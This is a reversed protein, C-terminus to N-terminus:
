RLEFTWMRTDYLMFKVQVTEALMPKGGTWMMEIEEDGLVCDSLSSGEIPHGGSQLEALLKGERVTQANVILRRGEVDNFPKTLIVGPLKMGAATVEM